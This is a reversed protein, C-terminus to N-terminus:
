PVTLMGERGEAHLRRAAAMVAGTHGCTADSTFIRAGLRAALATAEPDATVVVLGAITRAQALAELVDQLMARAFEARADCSLTGALRSKAQGLAKVPVVAWIDRRATM